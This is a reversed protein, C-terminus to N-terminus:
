RWDQEIEEDPDAGVADSGDRHLTSLEVACISYEVAVAPRPDVRRRTWSVQPFKDRLYVSKRLHINVLVVVVVAFGLLLYNYIINDQGLPALLVGVDEDGFDPLFHLRSVNSVVYGAPDIEYVAVFLPAFICDLTHIYEVWEGIFVADIEGQDSLGIFSLGELSLNSVEALVGRLDNPTIGVRQPSGHLGGPLLLQQGIATLKYYLFAV